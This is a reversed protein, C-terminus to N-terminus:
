WNDRQWKKENKIKEKMPNYCNYSNIQMIFQKADLEENLETGHSHPGYRNQITYEAGRETGLVVDAKMLDKDFYHIFSHIFSHM